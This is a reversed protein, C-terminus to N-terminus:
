DVRFVPPRCFTSEMKPANPGSQSPESFLWCGEKERPNVVAYYDVRYEQLVELLDRQGAINALMKQDSILGELQILPEAM